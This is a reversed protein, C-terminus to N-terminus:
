RKYDLHIKPLSIFSEQERRKAFDTALFRTPIVLEVHPQSVWLRGEVEEKRIRKTRMEQQGAQVVMVVMMM